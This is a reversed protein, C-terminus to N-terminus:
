LGTTYGFSNTGAIECFYTEHLLLRHYNPAARIMGTVYM